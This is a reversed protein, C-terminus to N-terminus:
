EEAFLLHKARLARLVQRYFRPALTFRREDTHKRELLGYESLYRVAFGAFDLNVNLARRLEDVSLNEHQCFAALTYLLEPNLKEIESASESSFLGVRLRVPPAEDQEPRAPVGSEARLSRLWLYSALRPNGGSAEALLRFYGEASEIVELDGSASREGDLLFDDFEIPLGAKRNRRAILEQIEETRWAPLTRLRRFYHLRRRSQNVFEWAFTNFVLVWFVKEGTFNVLRTLAEFAEYGDVVRLFLNHVEDLLVVREPGKNLQAALGGSSKSEELGLAQALDAAMAKEDLLKRAFTHQSVPLSTLRQGLLNLLTTKGAGKEGLLVLSGDRRDARWTKVQDFVEQLLEERPLVLAEDDGQLPYLPFEALYDEPLPRTEEVAGTAMAKQSRRKLARARLYSGLNGGRLLRAGLSWAGALVLWLLAPPVLPTAWATRALTAGLRGGASGEAHLRGLARGLPARWAFAAWVGWGLLWLWAFWLILTRLAGAGLFDACWAHAIEVLALMLGVRGYTVKVLEVAAPSAAILAPRGRSVQRTLGMLVQRGFVYLWLWLFAVEVFRVEPHGFGVLGLALYGGALVVLSPMLAYFFGAWRILAGGHGRMARRGKLWRVALSVLGRARARLAVALALALLAGLARLAAQGGERTLVREPLRRVETVKQAFWALLDDLLGMADAQLDALLETSLAYAQDRTGASVLPSILSLRLRADVLRWRDLGLRSAAALGELSDFRAHIDALAAEAQEATGLAGPEPLLSDLEAALTAALAPTRPLGAVLRSLRRVAALAARFAEDLDRGGAPDMLRGFVLETTAAGQRELEAAATATEASLREFAGVRAQLALWTEDIDRATAERDVRLGVLAGAHARAALAKLRGRLSALAEALRGLDRAEAQMGKRPASLDALAALGAEPLDRLREALAELYTKRARAIELGLRALALEVELKARLAALEQARRAIAASYEEVRRTHDATALEHARLAEEHAAATRAAEEGAAGDTPVGADAAPAAPGPEAAVAPEAAHPAPPEPAPGPEAPPPLEAELGGLRVALREVAAAQTAVEAGLEAVRREVARLDHLPFTFLSASSVGELPRGAVLAQLRKQLALLAPDVTPAEAPPAEPTRGPLLSDALDTLFGPPPVTEAPQGTPVFILCLALCAAAQAAQRSAHQM